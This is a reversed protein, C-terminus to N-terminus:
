KHRSNNDIEGQDGPFLNCINGINGATKNNKGHNDTKNYQSEEFFYIDVFCKNVAGFLPESYRYFDNWHVTRDLVLDAKEKLNSGCLIPEAIVRGLKVKYKKGEYTFVPDLYNMIEYVAHRMSWDYSAM